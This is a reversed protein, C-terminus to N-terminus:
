WNAPDEDIYGFYTGLVYVEDQSELLAALEFKDSQIPGAAYKYRLIKGNKNLSGNAPDIALKPIYDAIDYLNEAPPPNGAMWGSTVSNQKEALTMDDRTSESYCAPENEAEYYQCGEGSPVGPTPKMTILVNMGRALNTIDSQRVADRAKKLQEDPKVAIFVLTSLIGILAIVILIEILTFANQTQWTRIKM